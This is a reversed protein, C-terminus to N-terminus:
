GQGEFADKGLIVPKDDQLLFGGHDGGRSEEVIGGVTQAVSQLAPSLATLRMSAVEDLVAKNTKALESAVGGTNKLGLATIKGLSSLLSILTSAADVASSTKSFGRQAVNIEGIM